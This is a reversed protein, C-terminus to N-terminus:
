SSRSSSGMSCRFSSNQDRRTGSTVTWDIIRAILRADDTAMATRVGIARAESGLVKQALRFYFRVGVNRYSRRAQRYLELTVDVYSSQEMDIRVTKEKSSSEM